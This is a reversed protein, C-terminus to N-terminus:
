AGRETQLHLYLVFLDYWCIWKGNEPARNKPPKGQSRCLPRCLPQRRQRFRLLDFGPVFFRDAFTCVTENQPFMCIQVASRRSTLCASQVGSSHERDDCFFGSADSYTAPISTPASPTSGGVRQKYPLRESGVSSLERLFPKPSCLCGKSLRHCGKETCRIAGRIKM